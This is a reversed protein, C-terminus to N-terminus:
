KVTKEFVSIMGRCEKRSREHCRRYTYSLGSAKAYNLGIRKFNNKSNVTIKGLLLVFKPSPLKPVHGLRCCAHGNSFSEFPHWSNSFVSCYRGLLLGGSYPSYEFLPTARRTAAKTVLAPYKSWTSFRFCSNVPVFASFHARTM